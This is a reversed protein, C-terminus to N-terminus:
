MRVIVLFHLYLKIRMSLYFSWFTFLSFGLHSDILSHLTLLESIVQAQCLSLDPAEPLKLILCM